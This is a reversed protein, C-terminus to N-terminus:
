ALHGRRRHRRAADLAIPADHLRAPGAFQFPSARQSLVPDTLIRVGDIELLVTAHGLWRARLGPAPVKRLSAPPVQVVTVVRQPERLEDGFYARINQSLSMDSVYPPQNEFRGNSYQPSLRMRELRSDMAGGFVPMRFVQFTAAAIGALLLLLILLYKLARPM